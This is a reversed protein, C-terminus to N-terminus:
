FGVDYQLEFPVGTAVPSVDINVVEIAVCDSRLPVTVGVPANLVRRTTAGGPSLCIQNFQLRVGQFAAAAGAADNNVNSFDSMLFVTEAGRPVPCLHQTNQAVAAEVWGFFTRMPPVPSTFGEGAFGQMMLSRTFVANRSAPPPNNFAENRDFSSGSSAVLWSVVGGTTISPYYRSTTKAKVIIVSGFQSLRVIRNYPMNFPIEVMLDGHGVVLSGIVEIQQKLNAPLVLASTAPVETVNFPNTTDTIGGANAGSAAAFSTEIPSMVRALATLARSSTRRMRCVPAWQDGELPTTGSMDEIPLEDLTVVKPFDRQLEEDMLPLNGMDPKLAPIDGYVSPIPLAPDVLMPGFRRSSM